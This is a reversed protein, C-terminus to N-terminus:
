QSGKRDCSYDRRVKYLARRPFRLLRCSSDGLRSADRTTNESSVCGGARERGVQCGCPRISLRSLTTQAGGPRLRRHRRITRGDSADCCRRDIRQSGYCPHNWATAEYAEEYEDNQVDKSRLRLRSLNCSKDQSGIGLGALLQITATAGSLVLVASEVKQKKDWMNSRSKISSRKAARAASTTPTGLIHRNDRLVKKM